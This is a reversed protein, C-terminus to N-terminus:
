SKSINLQCCLIIYKNMHAPILSRAAAQRQLEQLLQAALRHCHSSCGALTFVLRCGSASAQVLHTAQLIALRTLNGYKQQPDINPQYKKNACVPM